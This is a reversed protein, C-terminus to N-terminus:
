PRLFGGSNYIFRIITGLWGAGDKRLEDPLSVGSILLQRSFGLVRYGVSKLQGDISDRNREFWYKWRAMTMECPYDSDNLEDDPLIVEDIMDEIVESSYHKHPVIFDPLANHIRRCNDNRCRVREILLWRTKGGHQKWIRRISDYHKLM